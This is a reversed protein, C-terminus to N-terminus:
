LKVIKAKKLEEPDIAEGLSYTVRQGKIDDDVDCPLGIYEPFATTITYPFKSKDQFLVIGDYKEMVYLDEYDPDQRPYCNYDGEFVKNLQEYEVEFSLKKTKQIEELQEKSVKVQLLKM